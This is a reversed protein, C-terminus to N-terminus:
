AALRERLMQLDRWALRKQEPQTLLLRPHFTALVPVTADGFTADHWSGRAAPFRRNLVLDCATGGMLLLVQPAALAIHRLVFPRLVASEHPTPGRQGPTRWPLATALYSDNRSHGIAGLMRDLLEGARGTFPAGDADEDRDPVDGVIMLPAPKGAAFVLKRASRKLDCGEFGEIADRLTVLDGADAALREAEAVAAKDAVGKAHPRPPPAAATRTKPASAASARAAAAEKRESELRETEAFRDVPEDTLAEDVGADRYWALLDEIGVRGVTQAREESM